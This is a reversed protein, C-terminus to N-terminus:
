LTPEYGLAEIVDEGVRRFLERQGETFIEKWQGSTGKRLFTKTNEVGRKRSAKNEFSNLNVVNSIEDESINLGLFDSVERLRGHPDELLDEFRVITSASKERNELWMRIWDLTMRNFTGDELKTTIYEGLEVRNALNYAAHHPTRKVFWYESIIVDRPDRVTLIYRLASKKLHGVNKKTGWTHGKIVALYGKFPKEWGQHLEHEASGIEGVHYQQNWNAPTFQSFGPFSKLLDSVWTSGSKPLGAIFICKQEHQTHNRLYGIKSHIRKTIGDCVVEKMFRKSGMRQYMTSAHRIRRIM